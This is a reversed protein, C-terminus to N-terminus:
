SQAYNIKRYVYSVDVACIDNGNSRDETFLLSNNKNCSVKPLNNSDSSSQVIIANGSSIEICGGDQSPKFDDIHNINGENNETFLASIKVTTQAISAANM